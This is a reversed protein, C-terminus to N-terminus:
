KETRMKYSRAAANFIKKIQSEFVVRRTKGGIDRAAVELGRQQNRRVEGVKLNSHELVPFKRNVNIGKTVKDLIM